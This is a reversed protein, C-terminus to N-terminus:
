GWSTDHKAGSSAPVGGKTQSTLEENLALWAPGGEHGMEHVKSLFSACSM